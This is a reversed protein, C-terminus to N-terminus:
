GLLAAVLRRNEEAVTRYQEVDEPRDAHEAFEACLASRREVVMARFLDRAERDAGLNSAIATIHDRNSNLMVSEVRYAPQDFAPLVEPEAFRVIQFHPGRLLVEKEQPFASIAEVPVACLSTVISRPYRTHYAALIERPLGYVKVELLLPYVDPDRRSREMAFRMAYYIDRSSSAMSLPISIYRDQIPGQAIQRFRELEQATVCMGRYVTGEFGAVAANRALFNFLDINLLEVLFAASRLLSDEDLISETRLAENIVQYVQRYGSDSTYLKVATYDKRDPKEYGDAWSKTSALLEEWEASHSGHDAGVARVTQRLERMFEPYRDWASRIENIAQRVADMRAYAEPGAFFPRLGETAGGLCGPQIESWGEFRSLREVSSM